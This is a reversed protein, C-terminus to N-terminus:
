CTPLKITFTTGQGEQSAVSVSGGHESIIKQAISLGLGHGNTGKKTRAADVRYFRDFIYPLHHRSIGIGQDSVSIEVGRRIKKTKVEITGRDSYKIANDLFIVLIQILLDKDGMVKTTNKKKPFKLKLRKAAALPSVTKVAKQIVDHLLVKKFSADKNKGRSLLLLAETLNELNQADELNEQLIKTTKKTLRKDMLNVELSTKLATIPTRLEHAADSIFRKQEDMAIRIPELTKGSLFYGGVGFVAAIVANIYLLQIVIQSKALSIDEEEIRLLQQQARPLPFLMDQQHQLREQIRAFEVDLVASIRTYLLFSLTGSILLTLVLYVATLKLRAQQFM